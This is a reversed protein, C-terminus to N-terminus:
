GCLHQVIDLGVAGHVKRVVVFEASVKYCAFHRFGQLLLIYGNCLVGFVGVNIDALEIGKFIGVQKHHAIHKCVFIGLGLDDGRYAKRILQAYVERVLYVDKVIGM